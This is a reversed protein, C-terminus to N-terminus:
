SGLRISLICYPAGKLERTYLQKTTVRAGCTLCAVHEAYPNMYFVHNGCVECRVVSDATQEWRLLVETMCASRKRLRKRWRQLQDVRWYTCVTATRHFNSVICGAKAGAVGM